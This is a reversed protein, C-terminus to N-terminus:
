PKTLADGLLYAPDAKCSFTAVGNRYGRGAFQLCKTATELQVKRELKKLVDLLKRVPQHHAKGDAMKYPKSRPKLARIASDTLAM